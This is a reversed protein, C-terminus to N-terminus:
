NENNEVWFKCNDNDVELLTKAILLLHKQQNGSPYWYTWDDYKTSPKYAIILGVEGTSKKVSILKIDITDFVIEKGVVKINNEKEYHTETIGEFLEKFKM